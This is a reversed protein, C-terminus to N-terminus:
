NKELSSNSSEDEEFGEEFPSYIRNLVKQNEDSQLCTGKSIQQIWQDFTM